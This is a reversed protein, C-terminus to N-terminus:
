AAPDQSSYVARVTGVPNWSRLRSGCGCTEDKRFTLTKGSQTVVTSVERAVRARDFSSYREQFVLRPGDPSDVVAVVVEDTLVVRAVDVTGSSAGDASTVTLVAPFLDHIIRM